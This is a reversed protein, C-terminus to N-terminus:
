TRQPPLHLRPRRRHAHRCPTAGMAMSGEGGEGGGGRLRRLRRRRAASSRWCASARMTASRRPQLLRVVNSLPSPASHARTRGRCLRPPLPVRAVRREGTRLEDRAHRALQGLQVGAGGRLVTLCAPRASWRPQREACAGGKRAYREREREVPSAGDGAADARARM